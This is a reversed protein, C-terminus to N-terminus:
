GKVLRRKMRNVGRIVQYVRYKLKDVPLDWTGAYDRSFGGFSQKHKTFGYWPHKPDESKTMGWFDFESFGMKQADVMEQVSIIAGARLNKKTADGAAHMAYRVGDYDHVLSAAVPEGEFEAVYLTAFGAKLQNKLHTESQPAFQRAEGLEGLFKMLIGIKEPDKTQYITLGHAEHNRWHKARAKEMGALLDKESGQLDVVWTSAPDLDHSKLLGMKKMEIATVGYKESNDVLPVTPEVRVFFAKKAKAKEKLVKFARELVERATETKKVEIEPGYPVYFYKGLATTMVVVRASFGEGKVHLTEHGELQEYKEWEESQLFHGFKM